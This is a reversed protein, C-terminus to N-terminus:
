EEALQQLLDAIERHAAQSQTIVLKTGLTQITGTPPEAHHAMELGLITAQVFTVLGNVMANGVLQMQRAEDASSKKADPQPPETQGPSVSVGFEGGVLQIASTLMSAITDAPLPTGKLQNGLDDIQARWSWPRISQRITKVLQEPPLGSLQKISYVRTEKTGLARLRTTIVLGDEEVVYDLLTAKTLLLPMGGFEEIMMNPAGELAHRLLTAITVRSLDLNQVDIEVKLLDALIEQFNPAKADAASAKPPKPVSVPAELEQPAEPEASPGVEPTRQPEDYEPVQVIATTPPPVPAAGAPTPAPRPETAASRVAPAPLAPAAIPAAASRAATPAAVPGQAPAYAVPVAYQASVPAACMPGACVPAKGAISPAACTAPKPAGTAPACCAPVPGTTTTVAVSGPTAPFYQVNDNLYYGSPLQQGGMIVSRSTLVGPLM